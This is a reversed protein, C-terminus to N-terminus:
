AYRAETRGASHLTRRKPKRGTAMEEYRAAMKAHIAAACSDTASESLQRETRARQAFYEIDSM